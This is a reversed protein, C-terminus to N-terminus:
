SQNGHRLREFVDVSEYEPVSAHELEPADLGLMHPRYAFTHPHGPRRPYIFRNGSGLGAFFGLSSGSSVLVPAHVFTALDQALTGTVRTTVHFGRQGLYEVFDDLYRRSWDAWRQGYSLNSVVLVRPAAVGAVVVIGGLKLADVFWRYPKLQYDPHRTFPIDGLRYQIVADYADNLPPPWTMAALDRQIEPAMRTWLESGCTNWASSYRNTLFRRPNRYPNLADYNGGYVADNDEYTTATATAATASPPLIPALREAVRDSTYRWTWRFPLCRRACQARHYYYASMSNGWDGCCKQTCYPLAVDDYVRATIAAVVLVAVVTVLILFTLSRRAM